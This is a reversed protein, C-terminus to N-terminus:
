AGIPFTAQSLRRAAAECYKEELEVGIAHHGLNRAAILTSGAGAFPDAIVGDPCTRILEEMVDVPKAHPHGYRGALGHESGQIRARTTLISSRGGIGSPWPGVLYIAEVDRRWGNMAGRTGADGPKGMVLVQKTGAPPTLMLDGFVIGIRDAGWLTLATDRVTTDKDGAIGNRGIGKARRGPTPMGGGQKWGRGFPPDTVLVDAALWEAIEECRGHYLTVQEDSYYPETM